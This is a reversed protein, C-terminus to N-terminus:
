TVAFYCDKCHLKMFILEVKKSTQHIKSNLLVPIGTVIMLRADKAPRGRATLLGQYNSEALEYGVSYMPKIQGLIAKM